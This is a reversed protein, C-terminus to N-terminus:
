ADAYTEQFALGIVGATLTASQTGYTREILARKRDVAKTLAARIQDNESSEGQSTQNVGTYRTLASELAALETLDFLADASSIAAIEAATPQTPDATAGGLQRVAWAIPSALDDGPQVIATMGALALLPGCRRSITTEIQARTTM